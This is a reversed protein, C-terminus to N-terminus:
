TGAMSNNTNVPSFRTQAVDYVLASSHLPIDLFSLFILNNFFSNLSSLASTPLSLDADAPRFRVLAAFDSLRSDFGCAAGDGSVSISFDGFM